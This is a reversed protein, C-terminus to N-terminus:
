RFEDMFKQADTPNLPLDVLPPNASLVPNHAAYEATQRKYIIGLPLREGVEEVKLRAASLDSSDYDAPLYYARDKYWKFTNVKNFTPCTQLIDVLAYGPYSVAEAILAALHKKDAFFGRAVFGAGLTLALALPNIPQLQVGDSQLETRQHRATTPSAQGKTLGYVQNNHVLHTIDLNRRVAHVFHNGGEGYSCGDGSEVIVTLHKNALKIGIGAPLSRGHLGNFMNASIYQPTKAAQGIGSSIVVQHPELNLSDLAEKLAELIGFNGCGPCWATEKNTSFM